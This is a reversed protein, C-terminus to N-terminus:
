SYIVPILKEKLRQEFAENTFNSEFVRRAKEGLAPLLKKSQVAKEIALALSHADGGKVIYGNEGDNIFSATGTCDSVIIPKSLMMAETCVIPMPDDLSPCLLIDMRKFLDLLHNHQMVGMLKLCDYASERLLTEIKKDLTNGILYIDLQAIIEASLLSLSDLLVQQGKREEISGALVMVVKENEINKNQPSCPIDDIGYILSEMKIDKEGFSRAIRRAYDGVVFLKDFHRYLIPFQSKYPSFKFGYSGEHIWCVKKIKVDAIGEVLPITAITNFLIMDFSSIYKKLSQSIHYTSDTKPISLLKFPIGSPVLEIKELPGHVSSAFIVHFGNKKLILALNFLARPAGTLSMEHSMLLITKGHKRHENIYLLLLNHAQYLSDFRVYLYACLQSMKQSLNNFFKRVM